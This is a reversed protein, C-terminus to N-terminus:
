DTTCPVEQLLLVGIPPHDFCASIYSKPTTEHINSDSPENCKSKTKREIAKHILIKESKKRKKKKRFILSTTSNICYIYQLM